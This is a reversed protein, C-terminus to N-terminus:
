EAFAEQHLEMVHDCFRGLPQLMNVAEVSEAEDLTRLTELALKVNFYLKDLPVSSMYQKRPLLTKYRESGNGTGVNVSASKAREAIKAVRNNSPPAKTLRFAEKTLEETTADEGISDCAAQVCKVALPKNVKMALMAALADRAHGTMERQAIHPEESTPEAKPEAVSKKAPKIIEAKLYMQRLSTAESYLEAARHTKSWEVLAMYRYCTRKNIDHHLSDLWKDFKGPLLKKAQLLANGAKIAHDVILHKQANIIQESRQICGHCDLIINLLKDLKDTTQEM